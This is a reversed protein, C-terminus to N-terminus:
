FCSFEQISNAPLSWSAGYTPSCSEELERTCPRPTPGSASHCDAELRIGNEDSFQPYLSGLEYQDVELTLSLCARAM